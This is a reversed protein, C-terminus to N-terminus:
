HLGSGTNRVKALLIFVLGALMGILAAATLLLVSHSAAFAAKGAGIM